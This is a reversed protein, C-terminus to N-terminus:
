MGYKDVWKISDDLFKYIADIRRSPKNLSDMEKEFDIFFKKNNTNDIFHGHYGYEEKEPISNNMFPSLHGRLKVLATRSLIAYSKHRFRAHTFSSRTILYCCKIKKIIFSHYTWMMGGPGFQFALEFNNNQSYYRIFDLNDAHYSTERDMWFPTFKTSDASEIDRFWLLRNESESLSFLTDPKFSSNDYKSKTLYSKSDIIRKVASFDCNCNEDVSTLLIDDSRNCGVLSLILFSLLAINKM